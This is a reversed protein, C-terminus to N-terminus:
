PFAFRLLEGELPAVSPDAIPLSGNWRSWGAPVLRTQPTDHRVWGASTEERQIVAFCSDPAPTPGSKWEYLTASLAETLSERPDLCLIWGDSVGHILGSYASEKSACVIKAGYEKAIRLTDDKSGHDIILIEDCPCLTELSRGLRLADNHTHLVATISPM